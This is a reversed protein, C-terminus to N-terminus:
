GVFSTPVDAAYPPRIVLTAQSPLQIRGKQASNRAMYASYSTAKPESVEETTPAQAAPTAPFKKDNM